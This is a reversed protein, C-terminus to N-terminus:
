ILSPLALGGGRKEAERCGNCMRVVIAKVWRDNGARALANQFSTRMDVSEGDIAEVWGVRGTCPWNEPRHTARTVGKLGFPSM